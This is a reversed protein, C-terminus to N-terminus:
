LGKVLLVGKEDVVERVLGYLRAWTHSVSGLAILALAGSPILNLVHGFGLVSVFETAEVGHRVIGVLITPSLLGPWAGHM